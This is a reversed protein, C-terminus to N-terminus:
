ILNICQKKTSRSLSVYKLREDLKEWEYISYPHEYSQGQCCHITICFNSNFLKTVEVTKISMCAMSENESRTITIFEADAKTMKFMENNMINLDKNNMRAIIPMNRLLSVHQSREDFKYAKLNVVKKKAGTRNVEVAQDMKEKYIKKRTANTFCLNYKTKNHTFEDKKLTNINEPLCM